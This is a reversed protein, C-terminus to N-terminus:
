RGCAAAIEATPYGDIEIVRGTRERVLFLAGQITFDANWEIIFQTPTDVIRYPQVEGDRCLCLAYDDEPDLLWADRTSTSFLVLVGVVVIRADATQAREIIYRAEQQIDVDGVSVQVRADRKARKLQRKLRRKAAENKKNPNSM